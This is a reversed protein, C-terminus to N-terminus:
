AAADILIRESIPVQKWRGDLQIETLYADDFGAPGQAFNPIVLSLFGVDFLLPFEDDTQSHFAEYPHTHIQVRVGLGREVLHNWFDGIWRDDIALGHMSSKHKPHVVKTLKSPSTWESLWFVQCERCNAGCARFMTFSEELMRRPLHLM